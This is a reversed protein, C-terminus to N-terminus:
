LNNECYFDYTTSWVSASVTITGMAVVDPAYDIMTLPVTVYSNSPISVYDSVTNLLGQSDSGIQIEYDVDMATDSSNYMYMEESEGLVCTLHPPTTYFVSMESYSILAANNVVLQGSSVTLTTRGTRAAGVSTSPSTIYLSQNNANVVRGTYSYTTPINSITYTWALNSPRDGWGYGVRYDYTASYTMTTTTSGYTVTTTNFGSVPTWGTPIGTVSFTINCGKWIDTISDRSQVGEINSDWVQKSVIESSVNSGSVNMYYMTVNGVDSGMAARNIDLTRSKLTGEFSVTISGSNITVARSNSSNVYTDSATAYDSSGSGDLNDYPGLYNAYLYQVSNKSFYTEDSQWTSTLNGGLVKVWTGSDLAYVAGRRRNRVTLKGYLTTDITPYWASTSTAPTSTVYGTLQTVFIGNSDKVYWGSPPTFVYYAKNYIDLYTGSSITQTKQSSTYYTITGVSSSYTGLTFVTLTADITVATSTGSAAITGSYGDAGKVFYRADLPVTHGSPTYEITAGSWTDRSSLVDTTVNTRVMSANTYTIKFLIASDPNTVSLQRLIPTPLAVTSPATVEFSGIAGSFGFSPSWEYSFNKGEWSSVSTGADSRSAPTETVGPYYLYTIGTLYSPKAPITISHMIPYANVTISGRNGVPDYSIVDAGYHTAINAPTVVIKGGDWVNVTFSSATSSTNYTATPYWYDVGIRSIAASYSGKTINVSHTQPRVDLYNAAVFTTTNLFNVTATAINATWYSAMTPQILLTDGHYLKGGDSVRGGTATPELWSDRDVLISSVHEKSGVSLTGPRAWYVTGASNQIVTVINDTSGVRYKVDNVNDTGYKIAM